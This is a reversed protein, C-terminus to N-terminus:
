RGRSSRAGPRRRRQAPSQGAPEAVPDVGAHRRRGPQGLRLVSGRPVVGVGAGGAVVPVDCASWRRRRPGAAAGRRGRARPDWRLEELEAGRRCTPRSSATSWRAASSPWAAASPTSARTRSPSGCRCTSTSCWRTARAGPALREVMGAAVPVPPRAPRGALTASGCWGPVRLSLTWPEDPTQVIHVTVRGDWPYTPASRSRCRRGASGRAAHRGRRVPPAARRHRRRDGPVAAVLEAAADPQAPLLRLGAVAAGSATGPRSSARPPDAAAAPQRLLVRHGVLSLGSLVGNYMTREIADAYGPEGTALLLRWALMVSAIAACTEAYARDPPLEYPDGFAEDRHRSGMGGTLYRAPACWTTGAGSCRRSCSTTAASSPSTSRVATSTSSGSATGPSRPPRGSRSTTRGTPRASGGTASCATAACTSCGPPWRRPLAARRHGPDARGAGDRHGPARRRRRPRRRRVRPRHPRGGPGRDGAAPRRRAGPAM